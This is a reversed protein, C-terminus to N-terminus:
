YLQQYPLQLQMSPDANFYPFAFSSPGQKSLFTPADLYFIKVALRVEFAAKSGDHNLIRIYGHEDLTTSTTLRTIQSSLVIAQPSFM